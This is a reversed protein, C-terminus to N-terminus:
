RVIAADLLALLRNVVAQNAERQAAMEKTLMEVISKTDTNINDFNKEGVANIAIAGEAASVTVGKDMLALRARNVLSETLYKENGNFAVSMNSRGCGVLEAFETKTTCLGAAVSMRFLSNLEELLEIKTKM